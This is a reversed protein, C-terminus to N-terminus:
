PLSEVQTELFEIHSEIDARFEDEEELELRNKEQTIM